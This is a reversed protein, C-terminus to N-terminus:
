AMPGSQGQFNFWVTLTKGKGEAEVATEGMHSAIAGAIKAGDKKLKLQSPITQGQATTVTVDWTGIVDVAPTNSAAATQAGQGSGTSAAAPAALCAILLLPTLPSTPKM